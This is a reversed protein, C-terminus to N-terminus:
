LHMEKSGCRRKREKGGKWARGHEDSVDVSRSVVIVGFWNTDDDILQRESHQWTGGSGRSKRDIPTQVTNSSISDFLGKTTGQLKICFSSDANFYTSPLLCYPERATSNSCM